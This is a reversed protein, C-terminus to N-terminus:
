HDMISSVSYSLHRGVRHQPQTHTDTNGQAPPYRQLFACVQASWDRKLTVSMFRLCVRVGAWSSWIAVRIEERGMTAPSCHSKVGERQRRFRGPGMRHDAQRVTTSHILCLLTLFFKKISTYSIELTLKQKCFLSESICKYVNKKKINKEM